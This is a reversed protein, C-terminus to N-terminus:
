VIFELGFSDTAIKTRESFKPICRNDVLMIGVNTINVTLREIVRLVAFVERYKM